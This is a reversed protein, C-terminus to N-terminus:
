ASPASRSPRRKWVVIGLPVAGLTMMVISAPEPVLGQINVNDSFDFPFNV